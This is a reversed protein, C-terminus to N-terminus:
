LWALLSSVESLRPQVLLRANWKAKVAVPNWRPSATPFFSRRGAPFEREDAEKTGYFLDRCKAQLIDVFCGKWGRTDVFCWSKLTRISARSARRQISHFLERTTWELNFLRNFSHYERTCNNKVRLFVKRWWNEGWASEDYIYTVILILGTNPCIFNLSVCIYLVYTIYRLIM